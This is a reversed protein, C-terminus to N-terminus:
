RNKVAYSLLVVGNEYTKSGTLECNSPRQLRGVLPIGDGLLMPNVKLTLEDVLGAAFLTSALEGAGALWIDKGQKAKLSRVFEAAGERVLTVSPDPSKDMTRSFVYSELFPYPNTVGMKVGVEYTKRGMLAVGYTPLSAFFDDVHPGEMIFCDFSGDRRAMFGDLSIAVHYKVKRM